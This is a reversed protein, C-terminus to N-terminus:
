ALAQLRFGGFGFHSMKGIHLHQALHFYPWLESLVSAAGEIGLRGLYGHTVLRRTQASSRRAVLVDRMGRSEMHLGALAEFTGGALRVPPARGECHGLAREIRRLVALVFDRATLESLRRERGDRTLRVPTTFELQLARLPGTHRPPPALQQAHPRLATAGSALTEGSGALSVKCLEARSTHAPGLCRAARELAALLHAVVPRTRGIVTLDFRFEGGKPITQPCDDAPALIWGALDAVPGGPRSHLTTEFLRPWLCEHLLRCGECTPLGVACLRRRLSKGLAGRLATGPFDGFVIDTVARFQLRYRQAPFPQWPDFPAEM